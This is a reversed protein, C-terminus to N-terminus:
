CNSMQAFHSPQLILRYNCQIQNHYQFMSHYTHSSCSNIMISLKVFRHFIAKAFSRVRIQYTHRQFRFQM